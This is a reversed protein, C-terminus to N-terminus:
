CYIQHQVYPSPHEDTHDDCGHGLMGYEARDGWTYVGGDGLVDSCLEM